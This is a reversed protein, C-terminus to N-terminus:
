GCRSSCRSRSRSWRSWRWSRRRYVVLLILVVLAITSYTTNKISESAATNTDHGVVASGTM